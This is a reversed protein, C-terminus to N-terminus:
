DEYDENFSGIPSEQYCAYCLVDVSGDREVKYSDVEDEMVEERTGIEEGCEDCAVM